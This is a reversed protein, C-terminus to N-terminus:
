HLPKPVTVYKINYVRGFAVALGKQSFKRSIQVAERKNQMANKGQKLYILSM